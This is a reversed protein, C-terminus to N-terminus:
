GAAMWDQVAGVWANPSSAYLGASRAPNLEILVVADTDQNIRRM